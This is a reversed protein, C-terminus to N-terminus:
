VGKEITLLQNQLSPELQQPREVAVSPLFEAPKEKIRTGSPAESKEALQLHM